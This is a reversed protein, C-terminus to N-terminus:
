MKACYTKIQKIQIPWNKVDTKYKKVLADYAMTAEDIDGEAEDVDDQMDRQQAILTDIQANMADIDAQTLGETNTAMIADIQPEIAAQTAKLANFKLRQSEIKKLAARKLAPHAKRFKALDTRERKLIQLCQKKTKPPQGAGAGQGSQGRDRAQASASHFAAGALLSVALLAAILTRSSRPFNM